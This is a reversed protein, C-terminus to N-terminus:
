RIQRLAVTGPRYHCPKKLGTPVSFHKRPEKKAATQKKLYTKHSSSGGGRSTGSTLKPQAVPKPEERRSSVESPEVGSDEPFSEESLEPTPEPSADPYDKYDPYTRVVLAIQMTTWKKTRLANRLRSTM